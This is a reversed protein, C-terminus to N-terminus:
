NDKYTEVQHPNQFRTQKELSAVRIGAWFCELGFLETDNLNSIWNIVRRDKETVTIPKEKM